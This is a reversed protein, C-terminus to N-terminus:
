ISHKLTNYIYVEIEESGNVGPPNRERTNAYPNMGLAQFKEGYYYMNIQSLGLMIVTMIASIISPKLDTGHKSYITVIYLREYIMYLIICIVTCMLVVFLICDFNIKELLGNERDKMTLSISDIAKLFKITNPNAINENYPYNDPSALSKVVANYELPIIIVTYLVLEFITMLLAVSLCYFAGRLFVPDYLVDQFKNFIIIPKRSFKKFVM